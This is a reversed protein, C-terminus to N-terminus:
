PAKQMVHALDEIQLAHRLANLTAKSHLTLTITQWPLVDFANDSVEADLDGFSVWVDRALKDSSL